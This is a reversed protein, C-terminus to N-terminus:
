FPFVFSPSCKIVILQSKSSLVQWNPIVQNLEEGIKLKLCGQDRGHRRFSFMIANDWLCLREVIDDNDNNNNTQKSTKKVQLLHDHTDSSPLYLFSLVLHHLLGPLSPEWRNIKLSQWPVFSCFRANWFNSTINHLHCRALQLELHKTLVPLHYKVALHLLEGPLLLIFFAFRNFDFIINLYLYLIFIITPSSTSFTKFVPTSCLFAKLVMKMEM